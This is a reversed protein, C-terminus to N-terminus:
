LEVSLKDPQNNQLIEMQNSAPHLICHANGFIYLSNDCTHIMISGTHIM